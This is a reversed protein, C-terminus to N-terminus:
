LVWAVILVSKRSPILHRMAVMASLSGTRRPVEALETFTVFIVARVLM